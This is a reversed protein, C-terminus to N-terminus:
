LSALTMVSHGYSWPWEHVDLVGGVGGEGGGRGREEEEQKKGSGGGHRVHLPQVEPVAALGGRRTDERRPASRAM